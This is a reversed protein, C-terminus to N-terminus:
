LRKLPEYGGKSSSMTCIRFDTTFTSAVSVDGGKQAFSAASVLMAISFLVM